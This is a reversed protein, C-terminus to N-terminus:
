FNVLHPRDFILTSGSGSGFNVLSDNEVVRRWILLCSATFYLNSYKGVKDSKNIPTRTNTNCSSQHTPMPIQSHINKVIKSHKLIQITQITQTHPYKTTNSLLQTLHRNWLQPTHTNPRLSLNPPNTPEWGLYKVCKLLSSFLGTRDLIWKTM